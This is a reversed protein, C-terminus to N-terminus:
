EVAYILTPTMILGSIVWFASAWPLLKPHSNALYILSAVVLGIAVRLAGGINIWTLKPMLAILAVNALLILIEPSSSWRRFDLLGMVGFIIAPVAVFLIIYTMAPSLDVYRLGSFPIVEM